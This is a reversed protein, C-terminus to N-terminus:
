AALAADEALVQTISLDGVQALDLEWDVPQGEKLVVVVPQIPHGPVGRLVRATRKDSLSVTTGVPFMSMTDLLARVVSRDHKNQQVERLITKMAEHGTMAPRHPRDDTLAAYTDAVAIVKAMPHIFQQHRKKPYGSADCREHVQYAATKVSDTVGSLKDLINLTHTPHERVMQWEVPTLRRQALRIHSPIKLMGLDHVLAAVGADTVQSEGFGMQHALTMSLLATKIGHRYLTNQADGKMRMLMLVLAPDTNVYNQFGQVLGAAVGLDQIQGEAFAPGLGSFQNLAQDFARETQASLANLEAVSLKQAPVRGPEYRLDTTYSGDSQAADLNPATVQRPRPPASFASPMPPKTRASEAAQAKAEEEERAQRAEETERKAVTRIGRRTLTDIFGQTIVVGARLLLVGASDTLDSQLPEGVRLSGVKIEESQSESM